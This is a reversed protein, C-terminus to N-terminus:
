AAACRAPPAFASLPATIASSNFFTMIARGTAAPYFPFRSHSAPMPTTLNFTASSPMCRVANVTLHAFGCASSWRTSFPGILDSYSSELYTPFSSDEGVCAMPPLADAYDSKACTATDWTLEKFSSSAPEFFILTGAASDQATDAGFFSIALSRTPALFMAGYVGIRTSAAALAGGVGDDLGYTVHSASLTGQNHWLLKTCCARTPPIAVSSQEESVVAALTVVRASASAALALAALLALTM